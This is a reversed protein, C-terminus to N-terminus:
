SLVGIGKAMLAACLIMVFLGILEWHIVSRIIRLKRDSVEPVAGKKITKGWSLYEVTPYISILGIVAFLTVKTMFAGNQFYYASGKEFYFVRFFGVALVISAAIGYALDARQIRRASELTLPMRILALEAVLAAVIAFAAAHHAFAALSVTIASFGTSM